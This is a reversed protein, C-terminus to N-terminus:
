WCLGSRDFRVGLERCMQKRTAWRDVEDGAERQAVENAAIADGGARPAAHACAGLVVACALSATVSRIRM